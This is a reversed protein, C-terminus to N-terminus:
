QSGINRSDPTLLTVRGNTWAAEFATEGVIIRTDPLDIRIIACPAPADPTEDAVLHEVRVPWGAGHFLRWLPYEWPDGNLRLGVNACNREIVQRVVEEYPMQLEPREFFQITSADSNLVNQDAVLSRHKAQPATWLGFLILGGALLYNLRYDVLRDFVYAIFTSILVFLPLHLRSHWPQWRLVLSFLVCAM